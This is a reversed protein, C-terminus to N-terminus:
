LRESNGGRLLIKNLFDVGSWPQRLGVVLRDHYVGM